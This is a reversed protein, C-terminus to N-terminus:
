WHISLVIYRRKENLVSFGKSGKLACVNQYKDDEMWLYNEMPFCYAYLIIIYFNAFWHDEIENEMITVDLNLLISDENMRWKM